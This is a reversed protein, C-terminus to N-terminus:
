VCPTVSKNYLLVQLTHTLINVKGVALGIKNQHKSRTIETEFIYVYKIWGLELNLIQFHDTVGYENKSRAKHISILIRM